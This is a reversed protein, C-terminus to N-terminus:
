RDREAAAGRRRAEGPAMADFAAPSALMARPLPEDGLGLHEAALSRAVRVLRNQRVALVVALVLLAGAVAVPVWPGGVFRGASRGASALIGGGVLLAVAGLTARRARHLMRAAEPGIRRAWGDDSTM